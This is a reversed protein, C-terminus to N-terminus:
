GTTLWWQQATRKTTQGVTKIVHYQLTSNAPITVTTSFDGAPGATVTALLTSGHFIKLSESAGFGSGSVTVTSSVPGFSPSINEVQNPSATYQEAGSRASSEFSDAWGGAMLGRGNSMVATAAGPRGVSMSATTAWSGTGSSSPTYLNASALLTGNTDFRGAMLVLGSDLVMLGFGDRATNFSGASSWTNSTANYQEAGSLLTFNSGVGGAELVKGNFLRVGGAVVRATAMSAAATWTNATPDYIEAAKRIVNKRMQGPRAWASPAFPRAAFGAPGATPCGPYYNAGGAVLVDGTQLLSMVGFIRNNIMPAAPSFANATPDYLEASALPICSADSGGAILIDGNPLAAVTPFIRADTM